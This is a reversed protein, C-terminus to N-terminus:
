EGILDTMVIDTGSFGGMYAKKHLITSSHDFSVSKLVNKSM